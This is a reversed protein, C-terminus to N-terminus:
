RRATDLYRENWKVTDPAGSLAIVRHFLGVSSPMLMHTTAAISGASEGILTVSEPDGGFNRINRRDVAIASTYNEIACFKRRCAETM